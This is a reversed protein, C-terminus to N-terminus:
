DQFPQAIQEKTETRDTRRRITVQYDKCFLYASYVLFLIGIPILLLFGTGALPAVPPPYQSPYQSWMQYYLWVALYNLILGAVILVIGFAAYKKARNL